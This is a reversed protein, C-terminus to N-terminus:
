AMLSTFGGFYYVVDSEDGKEYLKVFDYKDMDRSGGNTYVLHCSGLNEKYFGLRKFSDEGVNWAWVLTDKEIHQLFEFLDNYCNFSYSNKGFLFKLKYKSDKKKKVKINIDNNLMKEIKGVQSETLNNVKFGKKCLDQLTGKEM